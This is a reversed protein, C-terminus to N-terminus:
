QLQVNLEWIVGFPDQIKTYLSNWFTTELPSLCKSGSGLLSETVTRIEEEQELELWVSIRNSSNWEAASNEDIVDAAYFISEGLKFTSNAICSLRQKEDTYGVEEFTMTEVIEAQFVERYYALAQECNNHFLLFPIGCKIM